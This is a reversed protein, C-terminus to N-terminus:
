SGTSEHGLEKVDGEIKIVDTVKALNTEVCDRFYSDNGEWLKTYTHINIATVNGAKDVDFSVHDLTKSHTDFMCYAGLCDYGENLHKELKTAIFTPDDDAKGFTPFQYKYSAKAKNVTITDDPTISLQNLINMNHVSAREVTVGELEVPDFVAVPTIQGTCAPSRFIEKECGTENFQLKDM